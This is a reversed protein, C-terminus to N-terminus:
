PLAASLQLRAGSPVYGNESSPVLELKLGAVAGSKAPSVTSAQVLSVGLLSGFSAVGVGGWIAASASRQCSSDARGCDFSLGYGTLVAGVTLSPIIVWWAWDADNM